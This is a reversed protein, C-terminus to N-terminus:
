IKVILVNILIHWMSINKKSGGFFLNVSSIKERRMERIKTTSAAESMPLVNVEGSGLAVRVLARSVNTQAVDVYVIADINFCNRFVLYKVLLILFFTDFKAGVM